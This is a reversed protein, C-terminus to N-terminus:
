HREMKEYLNKCKEKKEQILRYVYNINQGLIKENEHKTICGNTKIDEVMDQLKVERNYAGFAVM